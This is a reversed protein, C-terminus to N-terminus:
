PAPPESEHKRWHQQLGERFRAREEASMCGFRHSGHQRWRHGPGGHGGFLIRCLALLGIAQLFGISHWGALPPLLWNWLSMVLTGFVILALVGIVAIKMIRFMRSDRM